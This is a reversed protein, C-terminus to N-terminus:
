VPVKRKGLRVSYQYKDGRIVSDCYEIIFGESYTTRNLHLAAANSDIKLLAADEGTVNVAEFTEVADTSIVNCCQELANYLGKDRVAEQTLRQAYQYVVYSVELAFPEEDALRLRKIVFAKDGASIGLKRAASQDVAMLDYSLIRASPVAGMKRIEDSFSYFDSLRQVFKHGTVFTGRGQKRYLYGESELEKLAQRVTIRSVQYIECLERESPIKANFKWVKKDINDIMINKLQYYLTLPSNENLM